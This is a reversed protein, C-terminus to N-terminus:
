EKTVVKVVQSSIGSVFDLLWILFLLIRVASIERALDFETWHTSFLFRFDLGPIWFSWGSAWAVFITVILTGPIVTCCFPVGCMYALTLDGDSGQSLMWGIASAGTVVGVIVDAIIVKQMTDFHNLMVIQPCQEHVSMSAFPLLMLGPFLWNFAKLGLGWLPAGDGAFDVAVDAILGCSYLVWWVVISTLLDSQPLLGPQWKDHTSDPESICHPFEVVDAAPASVNRIRVSNTLHVSVSELYLVCADSHVFSGSADLEVPISVEMSGAPPVSLWFFRRNGRINGSPTPYPDSFGGERGVGAGRMLMVIHCWEEEDTNTFYRGYSELDDIVVVGLALVTTALVFQLCGCCTKVATAQM